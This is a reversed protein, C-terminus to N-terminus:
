DGGDRSITRATVIWARSDFQVGDQTLHAALMGRLQDLARTAAGEDLRALVDKTNKFSRVIDCATDVDPGYYVPEHVATFGVDSFGADRLISEVKRPDGLSFPTEWFPTQEPAELAEPIATAWENREASQWVMM